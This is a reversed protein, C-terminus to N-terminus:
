RFWPSGPHRAHLKRDMGLWHGTPFVVFLAAILWLALLSADYYGGIAFMVMLWIALAGGFRTALGLCLSVAVAFEGVAVVWSVPVYLPIAFNQLFGAAFSDPEIEALRATLQRELDDLAQTGTFPLLVWTGSSEKEMRGLDVAVPLSPKVPPAVVTFTDSTRLVRWQPALEIHYRYVAPVRIRPVTEGVPVGLLLHVFRTDFEETANIRSVELLGGPTRMVMIEDGVPSRVPGSRTAWPEFSAVKMVVVALAAGLCLSVVAVLPTQWQKM